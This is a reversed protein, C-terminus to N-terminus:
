VQVDIDEEGFETDITFSILLTGRDRTVELKEIGEIHENGKLADTIYHNVEAKLMAPSAKEGILNELESGYSDSYAAYRQLQTQLTFWAWVKCAESGEVIEGTLKGTDFDIGYELYPAIGADTDEVDEEQNDEDLDLTEDDTDTDYPWM